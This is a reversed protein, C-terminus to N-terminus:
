KRRNDKKQKRSRKRSTKRGNRYDKMSEKYAKKDLKNMKLDFSIRGSMIDQIVAETIWDDGKADYTDKLNHGWLKGM